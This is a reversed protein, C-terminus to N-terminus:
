GFCMQASPVRSWISLRTRSKAMNVYRDRRAYTQEAPRKSEFRVKVFTTHSLCPPYMLYGILM